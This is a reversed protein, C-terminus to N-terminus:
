SLANPMLWRNGAFSLSNIEKIKQQARKKERNEKKNEMKRRKRLIRDKENKESKCVSIYVLFLICFFGM